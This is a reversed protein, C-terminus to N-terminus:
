LLQLRVLRTTISRKSQARQNCNVERYALYGDMGVLSQWFNESYFVQGCELVNQIYFYFFAFYFAPFVSKWRKYFFEKLNSISQYNYYLVAGSLVFFTTVIGSGFLGNAFDYWLKLHSNAHCYYHFVIIGVACIARVFDFCEIRTKKEM